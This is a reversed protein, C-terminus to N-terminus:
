MPPALMLHQRLVQPSTMVGTRDYALVAMCTIRHATVPIGPGCSWVGLLVSSHPASAPFVLRTGPGGGARAGGLLVPRRPVIWGMGEEWLMCTM